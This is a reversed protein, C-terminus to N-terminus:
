IRFGFYNIIKLYHICFIFILFIIAQHLDHDNAHRGEKNTSKKQNRKQLVKHKSYFPSLATLLLNKYAKLFSTESFTHLLRIQLNLICILRHLSTIIYLKHNIIRVFLFNCVLPGGPEYCFGFLCCILHLSSKFCFLQYCFVFICCILLFFVQFDLNM